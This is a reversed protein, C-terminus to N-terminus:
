GPARFLQAAMESIANLRSAQSAAVSDDAVADVAADGDGLTAGRRRGPCDARVGAGSGAAVAGSTFSASDAADGLSDAIGAAAGTIPSTTADDSSSAFSM